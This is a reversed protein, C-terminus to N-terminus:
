CACGSNESNKNSSPNPRAAPTSIPVGHPSNRLLHDAIYNFMEHIGTGDLASTLFWKMGTKESWQNLMDDSVQRESAMDAKNAAVILLADNGAIRRFNIIWEEVHEFSRISTIDIVIIGVNANRYYIPGLARFKEQGATDWIQLKVKNGEIDIVKNKFDVGITTM